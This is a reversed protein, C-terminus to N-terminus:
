ASREEDLLQEMLMSTIYFNTQLLRPLVERLTLLGTRSAALLVGLTGTTPLGLRSAVRRGKADDMLLFTATPLQQALRIAAEEGADLEPIGMSLQPDLQRVEFWDPLDNAWDRVASPAAADTLEELVQSPILVRQFLQALIEIEGVLVLYHIPSTDAIVIM